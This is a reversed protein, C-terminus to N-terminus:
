CGGDTSCDLGLSSLGPRISACGRFDTLVAFVAVVVVAAQAIELWTRRTMPIGRSAAGVRFFCVAAWFLAMLQWWFVDM